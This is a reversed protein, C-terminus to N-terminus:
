PAQLYITTDQTQSSEALLTKQLQRVELELKTNTLALLKTEMLLKDKELNLKSKQIELLEKTSAILEPNSTIASGILRIPFPLLHRNNRIEEEDSDSCSSDSDLPSMPRGLEKQLSEGDKASDATKDMNDEDSSKAEAVNSDIDTRPSKSSPEGNEASISSENVEKSLQKGVVDGNSICDDESRYRKRKMRSLQYVQQRPTMTFTTPDIGHNHSEHLDFLILKQLDPSLKFRLYMPCNLRKQGVNKMRTGPKQKLEGHCKCIYTISHYMLEENVLHYVKPIIKRTSEAKLLKSDKVILQVSNEKQYREIANRLQLFSTFEANMVIVPQEPDSSKADNKEANRTEQANGNNQVPDNATKEQQNDVVASGQDKKEKGSM